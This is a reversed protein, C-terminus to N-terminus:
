AYERLKKANALFCFSTSIAQAIVISLAAGTLGGEPVLVVLGGVHLVLFLVGAIAMPRTNGTIMLGMLAVYNLVVLTAYIGAIRFVELNLYQPSGLLIGFSSEYLFSAAYFTVYGPVIGVLAVSVAKKYRRKEEEKKGTAVYPFVVLKMVLLAAAVVKGVADFNFVYQAIQGDPIQGDM